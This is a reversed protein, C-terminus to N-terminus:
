DIEPESRHMIYGDKWPDIKFGFPKLDGRLRSIATQIRPKEIEIDTYALDVGLGQEIIDAYTCEQDLHEYLLRFIGFPRDSLRVSNGLVRIRNHAEDVLVGDATNEDPALPVGQTQLSACVAGAFLLTHVYPRLTQYGLVRSTPATRLNTVLDIYLDQLYDLVSCGTQQRALKRIYRIHQMATALTPSLNSLDGSHVALLDALQGYDGTWHQSIIATHISRELTVYDRLVSAPRVDAYDVLYWESVKLNAFVTEVRLDGHVTGVPRTTELRSLTDLYFIPNPYRQETGHGYDYVMDQQSVDLHVDPVCNQWSAAIHNAISFLADASEWGLPHTAGLALQYLNGAEKSISHRYRRPFREDHLFSLMESVDATSDVTLYSYLPQIHHLTNDYVEYANIAYHVTEARPVIRMQAANRAHADWQEAEALVREREGCLFLYDYRKGSTTYGQVKLWVRGVKNVPMQTLLVDEFRENSASFFQMRFLDDLERMREMQRTLSSNPHLHQIIRQLSTNEWQLNADQNLPLRDSLAREVKSLLEDESDEGKRIYDVAQPHEMAEVVLRHNTFGSYIIRLHPFQPLAALSLGERNEPETDDVGDASRALNIDFIGLHIHETDIIARADQYTSATFVTYGARELIKRVSRVAYLQDDVFLIRYRAPNHPMQWTPIPQTM